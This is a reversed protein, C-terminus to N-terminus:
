LEKGGNNWSASSQLTPSTSPSRSVKGEDVSWPSNGGTSSEGMTSQVQSVSRSDDHDHNLKNKDNAANGVGCVASDGIKVLNNDNSSTESICSESNNDGDSRSCTGDTSAGCNSGGAGAGDTIYANDQIFVNVGSEIMDTISQLEM